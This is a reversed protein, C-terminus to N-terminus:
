EGALKKQAKWEDVMSRADIAIMPAPDTPQGDRDLQQTAIRDGYINALLKSALWKDGDMQVRAAAANEATARRASDVAREACNHAQLERARAYAERFAPVAQQWRHITAFHPMHELAAIEILLEGRSLRECVEEAIEPTYKSPRGTAAPELPPLYTEPVELADLVKRIARPTARRSM